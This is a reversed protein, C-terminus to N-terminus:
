RSSSHPASAAQYRTVRRVIVIFLTNVCIGLVLETLSAINLPLLQDVVEVDRGLHNKALKSVWAAIFLLWWLLLLGNGAPEIGAEKSSRAFIEKMAHYPAFLCILPVIYFGIAGGPSFSLDPLKRAWLNANARYIWCFGLVISVVVTIGVPVILWQMREINENILLVTADDSLDGTMLYNLEILTLVLLVICWLTALCTFGTLWNSLRSLPKEVYSRNRGSKAVVILFFVLASVPVLIIVLHWLSFSGM